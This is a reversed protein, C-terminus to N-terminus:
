VTLLVRQGWPSLPPGASIWSGESWPGARTARGCSVSPMDLGSLFHPLQLPLLGVAIRQQPDLRSEAKAPAFHRAANCDCDHHGPRPTDHQGDDPNHHDTRAPARDCCHHHAVSGTAAFCFDVTPGVVCCCWQHALAAICVALITLIHRRSNM